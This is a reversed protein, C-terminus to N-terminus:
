ASGGRLDLDMTHENDSFSHKVKTVVMYVSLSMAGLNMRVVLSSGARISLDGIVGKAPYSRTKQNYLKLLAEAKAVGNEGEGLKDYFQLVGWDNMSKSDQVIYVDRKSTQPNDRVLKIKNYTSQDISSKIKFDTSSEADLLLDTRMTEIDKLTIAGYDDYVVHMKKTNRLTIDLATKIMDSLTQNDEIRPPLTYGTKALTGTKLNFLGAIKTILGGVDLGKYVMSDKNKLYRLQDYAVVDVTDKGYELTFIFGYFVNNGDVRFSVHNGETITLDPDNIVTFTLKGPSVSWDVEWAVEDIVTPFILDNGNRIM